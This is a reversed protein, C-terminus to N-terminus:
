LDVFVTRPVYKGAGTEGFFTGMCDNDQQNEYM